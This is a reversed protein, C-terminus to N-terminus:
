SPLPGPHDPFANAGILASRAARTGTHCGPLLLWSQIGPRSGRAGADLPTLARRRRIIMKGFKLRFGRIPNMWCEPYHSRGSM